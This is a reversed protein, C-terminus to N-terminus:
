REPVLARPTRRASAATNAPGSPLSTTLRAHRLTFPSQSAEFARGSPSSGITRSISSPVTTRIWRSLRAVEIESRIASPTRASPWFTSSAIRLM